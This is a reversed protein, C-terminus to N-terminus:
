CVNGRRRKFTAHGSRLFADAADIDSPREGRNWREHFEAYAAALEPFTGFNDANALKLLLEDFTM